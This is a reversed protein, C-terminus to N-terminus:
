SAGTLMKKIENVEHLTPIMVIKAGIAIIEQPTLNPTAFRKVCTKGLKYTFLANLAVNLGVAAPVVAVPLVHLILILAWTLIKSGMSYASVSAVAAAVLKAATQVSVNAGQKKAVAVVMALWIASMGAEDLGPHFIGPVGLGSATRVARRVAVEATEAEAIRDVEILSPNAKSTM